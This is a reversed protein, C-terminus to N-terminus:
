RPSDSVLPRHSYLMKVLKKICNIKSTYVFYAYKTNIGMKKVLVKKLLQFRVTNKERSKCKPLPHKLLTKNM